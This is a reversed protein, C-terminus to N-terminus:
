ALYIASSFANEIVDEIYDSTTYFYSESLERTNKALNKYVVNQMYVTMIITPFLILIILRSLFKIFFRNEHFM